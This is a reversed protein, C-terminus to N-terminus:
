VFTGDNENLSYYGAHGVTTCAVGCLLRHMLWVSPSSSWRQKTCYNQMYVWCSDRCADLITPGFACDHPPPVDDAENQLCGPDFDMVVALNPCPGLGFVAMHFGACQLCSAHRTDKPPFRRGTSRKVRGPRLFIGCCKTERVIM